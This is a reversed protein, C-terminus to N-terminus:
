DEPGRVLQESSIILDVLMQLIGATGAGALAVLVPLPVGYTLDTIGVTLVSVWFGVCFPCTVLYAISGDEKVRDTIGDRAWKMLPFESRTVLYTIYYIALLIAILDRM